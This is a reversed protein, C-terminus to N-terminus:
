DHEGQGEETPRGHAILLRRIMGGFVVQVRPMLQVPHSATLWKSTAHAGM